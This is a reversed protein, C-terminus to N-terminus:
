RVKKMEYELEGLHEIAYSRQQLSLELRNRATWTERGKDSYHLVINDMCAVFRKLCSDMAKCEFPALSMGSISMYIGNIRKRAVKTSALFADEDVDGKKLSLLGSGIDELLQKLANIWPIVVSLYEEKTFTNTSTHQALFSYNDSWDVIMGGGINEGTLPLPRATEDLSDNIWLSRCIHNYRAEDEASLYVFTWVIHADTDGWRGEVLHNRHYRRKAGEATVQRVISAIEAKSATGNVVVTFSYRKALGHSVDKTRFITYRDPSVLPTLLDVLYSVSTEDLVQSRPVHFKYGKGTSIATESTVAQWCITRNDPDCLCIIVPLSHNLWYDVHDADARFVIATETCESRYSAGTKIQIGLLQGTPRHSDILEAHGDIGYDSESQERFAFGLSEFTGMALAIGRRDTRETEWAKM